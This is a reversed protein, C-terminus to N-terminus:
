DLNWRVLGADVFSRADAYRRSEPGLFSANTALMRSMLDAYQEYKVSNDAYSRLRIAEETKRALEHNFKFHAMALLVDTSPRVNSRHTSSFWVGPRWRVIPTKLTASKGPRGPLRENLWRPVFRSPPRPSRIGFGGFLRKSASGNIRKPPIGPRFKVLPVADFCPYLDVLDRFSRPAARGSLDGAREPYFEVLSAAVADISAARLRAFLEGTDAVQPPLVLFEDADAYVAYDGACFTEGIVRKFMVGGRERKVSGDPMAVDLLTGYRITSSLLVCDPQTRLFEISGDTSGDDLILFQEIGLSRYHSFFAELFFRENRMISYVTRRGTAPTGHEVNLRSGLAAYPISQPM